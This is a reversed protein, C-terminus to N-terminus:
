HWSSRIGNLIADASRCQKRGDLTAGSPCESPCGRSSSRKVPLDGTVTIETVQAEHKPRMSLKVGVGVGEGACVVCTIDRKIDGEM